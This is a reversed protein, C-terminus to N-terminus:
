RRGSARVRNRRVQRLSRVIELERLPMSGLGPSPRHLFLGRRHRRRRRRRRRCRISRLVLDPWIM